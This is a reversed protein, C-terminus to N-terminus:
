INALVQNGLETDPVDAIDFIDSLSINNLYMTNRKLIGKSFSNSKTFKRTTVRRGM